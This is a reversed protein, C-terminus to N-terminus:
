RSLHGDNGRPSQDVREVSENTPLIEHRFVAVAHKKSVANDIPDYLEAPVFFMWIESNIKNRGRTSVVRQRVFEEIDTQEEATGQYSSLTYFSEWTQEDIWGGGAPQIQEVHRPLYPSIAKDWIGTHYILVAVIFIAPARMGKKFYAMSDAAHRPVIFSNAFLTLPLALVLMVLVVLWSLGEGDAGSETTVILAAGVIESALPLVFGYVPRHWRPKPVQSSTDTSM